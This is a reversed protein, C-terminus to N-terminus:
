YKYDCFPFGKEKCLVIKTRTNKFLACALNIKNLYKYYLELIALFNRLPIYIAYGESENQKIAM